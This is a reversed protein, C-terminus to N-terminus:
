ATGAIRAKLKDMGRRLIELIAEPGDDIITGIICIKCSRDLVIEIQTPRSQIPPVSKGSAPRGDPSKNSKKERVEEIVAARTLNEAVVREALATQEAPDDLKAVEYATTPALAGQEVAERVDEPLKLLALAQVVAVHSIHLKEALARQSMGTADILAKFAHAQEVPALNVRLANEVLQDELIESASLPETVEIAPLAEVGVLKAARWRREGTIIIWNGDAARRVRVPQLLGRSKISEGLDRISEEDSWDRRPQDPDPAIRDVPILRAQKLFPADGARVITPKPLNDGLQGSPPTDIISRITDGYKARIADGSKV